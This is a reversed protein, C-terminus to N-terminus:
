QVADAQFASAVRGLVYLHYEILRVARNAAKSGVLMCAWAFATDTRLGGEISHLLLQLSVHPLYDLPM